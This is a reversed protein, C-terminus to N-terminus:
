CKSATAGPRSGNTLSRTVRRLYALLQLHAGHASPPRRPRSLDTAESPHTVAPLAPYSALTDTQAFARNM